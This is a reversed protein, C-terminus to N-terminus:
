WEKRCLVLLSRLDASTCGGALYSLLTPPPAAVGVEQGLSTLAEDSGGRARQSLQPTTM